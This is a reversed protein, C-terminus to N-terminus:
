QAQLGFSKAFCNHISLLFRLVFRSDLVLHFLKSNNPIAPLILFIFLHHSPSKEIFSVRSCNTASAILIALVQALLPHPM